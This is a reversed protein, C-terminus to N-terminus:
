GCNKWDLMVPTGFLLLVVELFDYSKVYTDTARSSDKNSEEDGVRELRGFRAELM